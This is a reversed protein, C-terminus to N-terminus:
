LGTRSHPAGSPLNNTPDITWLWRDLFSVVREEYEKGGVIRTDNHYADQILYIEKPGKASRYLLESYESRILSDNTGHVFLIPIDIHELAQLPSVEDAKFNGIREARRMALNGILKWRVKIILKQYDLSITRLDTFSAEAIVAAIRRDIAAAQLAVAAGMSVGFLGIRGLGGDHERELESILDAVDFKEHYGYTCFNGESEGHRRADYLCVNYGRKHLLGALPLGGIKNDSIGHLYIVTGKAPSAAKLFWGDLTLGDRTKIKLGQYVLGLDRPTLIDTCRRYDEVTFRRPQLIILPGVTAVTLAAGFIFILVLGILLLYISM